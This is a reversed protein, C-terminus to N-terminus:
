VPIKHTWFILLLLDYYVTVSPLFDHYFDAHVSQFLGKFDSVIDQVADGELHLGPLPHPQQAAVARALGGEEADEGPLQVGVLPVHDDGPVPPQAEDGLDGYVRHAERHLVHELRGEGAVPLQRLLHLPEGGGHGGAVAALLGEPAVALQGGLKLADAAVIRVGGYVLHGVAQGNGRFHPGLGEVAQGAPLLRSHIQAAEDQLIGVDKKQVLWGVVQVEV